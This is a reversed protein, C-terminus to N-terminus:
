VSEGIREHMGEPVGEECSCIEGVSLKFGDANTEEFDAGRNAFPFCSDLKPERLRIRQLVQEGLHM